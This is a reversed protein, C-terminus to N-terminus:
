PMSDGLGGAAVVLSGRGSRRRVQSRAPLVLDSLPAFLSLARVLGCRPAPVLSM